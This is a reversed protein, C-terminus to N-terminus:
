KRLDQERVHMRSLVSRMDLLAPEEVFVSEYLNDCHWLFVEYLGNEVPRATCKMGDPLIGQGSAAAIGAIRFRRQEDFPLQPNAKTM